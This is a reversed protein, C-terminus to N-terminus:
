CPGVTDGHALHVQGASAAVTITNGKHCITVNDAIFHLTWLVAHTEGSATGSSGVVQGNRNIALARSSLGGPLPDLEILNGDQWFFAPNGIVGM